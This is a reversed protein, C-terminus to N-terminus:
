ISRFQRRYNVYYNQRDSIHNGNKEQIEDWNLISLLKIYAKLQVLKGKVINNDSGNGQSPTFPGYSWRDYKDASDSTPVDNSM